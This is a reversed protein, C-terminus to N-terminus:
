LKATFTLIPDNYLFLWRERNLSRVWERADDRAEVYADYGDKRTRIMVSYQQVKFTNTIEFLFCYTNM